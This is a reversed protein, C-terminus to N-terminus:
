LYKKMPSMPEPHSYKNSQDSCLFQYKVSPWGVIDIFDMVAKLIQTTIETKM